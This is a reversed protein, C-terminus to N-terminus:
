QIVDDDDWNGADRVESTICERLVDPMRGGFLEDVNHLFKPLDNRFGHDEDNSDWLTCSIVLDVVINMSEIYCPGLMIDLSYFLEGSNTDFGFQYYPEKFKLDKAKFVVNDFTDKDVVASGGAPIYFKSTNLHNFEYKYKANPDNVLGSLDVVGDYQGTYYVDEVNAIDTLRREPEIDMFTDFPQFGFKDYPFLRYAANILEYVYMDDVYRLNMVPFGDKTYLYLDVTDLIKFLQSIFRRFVKPSRMTNNFGFIFEDKDLDDVDEIEGRRYVSSFEIFTSQVISDIKDKTKEFWEPKRIDAKDDRVIMRYDYDMPSDLDDSLGKLSTQLQSANDDFFDEYVRSVNPKM